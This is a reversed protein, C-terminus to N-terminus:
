LTVCCQLGDSSEGRRPVRTTHRSATMRQRTEAVQGCRGGRAGETMRPVHSLVKKMLVFNLPLVMSFLEREAVHRAQRREFSLHLGPSSPLLHMRQLRSPRSHWNTADLRPVDFRFRSTARSPGATRARREVVGSYTASGLSACHMCTAIRFEKAM